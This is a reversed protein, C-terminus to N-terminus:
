ADTGRYRTLECRRWRSAWGCGGPRANLCVAEIRSRITANARHRYNWTVLYEVGNTVALAIHAADVAARAPVAGADILQRTLTATEETADPLTLSELTDLRAKASEPDGAGAEGVVLASALQLPGSGDGVM